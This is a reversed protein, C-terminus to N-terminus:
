KQDNTKGKSKRPWYKHKQRNPLKSYLWEKDHKFLWTYSARVTKQLAGRTKALKSKIALVLKARHYRRMHSFRKKKRISVLEPHQSLIQEVSAVSCDMEEAIQQTSFGRKLNNLIVQREKSFLRQERRHVYIGNVVAIQKVKIVSLGSLQSAHRLSTGITLERLAVKVKEPEYELVVSSLDLGTREGPINKSFSIFEDFSEFLMGIMLLHKLPHHNAKSQYFLCAPYTHGDGLELIHAISNDYRLLQWHNELAQRLEAQHINLCKSAMGRTLLKHRYIFALEEGYIHPLNGNLLELSLRALKLGEPSAWEFNEISPTQPAKITARRRKKVDKLQVGHEVCASVGPLQHKVHWYAIGFKEIDNVLCQPCYNLTKSDNTRGATISMRSYTTQTNGAYIDTLVTQFLAEDCFHSFYPVITHQNILQEADIGSANALATVYSPFTSDLQKNRTGLLNKLLGGISPYPSDYVWRSVWSYLTEDEFLKPCYQSMRLWDM